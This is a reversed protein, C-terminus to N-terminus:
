ALSEKLTLKYKYLRSRLTSYNVNKYRSWEKITMTKGEYTYLKTNSRNNNQILKTSWRCNLKSYNKKNDIRDLTTNSQGYKLRHKLYSKYMDKKFEEYSGWENKIGKGGWYKYKNWNKNTCRRLLSYYRLYFGNKRDHRM